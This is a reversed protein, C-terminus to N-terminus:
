YILSDVPKERLTNRPRDVVIRGHDLFDLVAVQGVHEQFGPFDQQALETGDDRV